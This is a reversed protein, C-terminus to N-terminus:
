TLLRVSEQAARRGLLREVRELLDGALIPKALHDVHELDDVHDDAPLISVILVPPAEAGLRERLWGVLEWGDADPLRLDLTILDPVDGAIAERAAAASGALAVQYGGRSLVRRLLEAVDPEDEVILLRGKTAGDTVGAAVAKGLTAEHGAAPLNFVFASGEGPASRVWISGGHLEVLSRTIALGLGTGAEPAAASNPVRYFKEFLRAQDAVSMGVGQDVVEVRAGLADRQVTVAIEGGAPSYKHANSLLNALIQTVREADAWVLPADEAIELRLRQQKAQLQPQFSTAIEGVARRLDVETRRLELRGAEIRSIDLLDNIL